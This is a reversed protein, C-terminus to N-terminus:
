TREVLRNQTNEILGQFGKFKTQKDKDHHKRVVSIKDEM